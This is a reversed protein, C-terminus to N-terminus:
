TLDRAGQGILADILEAPMGATGFGGIMVTAGDHIDAVAATVSGITKDIVITESHLRRRCEGCPRRPVPSKPGPRARVGGGSSRTRATGDGARARPERVQARHAREARGDARDHRCGRAYAAADHSGPRAEAVARDLARRYPPSAAAAAARARDRAAEA